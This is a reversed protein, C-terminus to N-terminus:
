GLEASASAQLFVEDAALLSFVLLDTPRGDKLLCHQSQEDLGADNIIIRFHWPSSRGDSM